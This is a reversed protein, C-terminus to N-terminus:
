GKADEVVRHFSYQANAFVAYLLIGPVLAAGLVPQLLVAAAILAVMVLSVASFYWRRVSLYLAAKAVAKLSATEFVVLGALAFLAAAVSGIGLVAFLPGLLPAWVTGATITGDLLVVGVVAATVLGVIFAPGGRRRYGQWFAAFPRPRGETKMSRFVEFAGVLSPALTLSLLLFFPWSALSDVTVFLMVALPLNFVVLLVDVMLLAYAYGFITEMTENRLGFLGRRAGSGNRTKSGQGAGTGIRTGAGAGTARRGAHATTTM